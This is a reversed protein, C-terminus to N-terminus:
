HDQTALFILLVEEFHLSLISNLFEMYLGIEKCAKYYKTLFNSMKYIM